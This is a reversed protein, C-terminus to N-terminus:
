ALLVILIIILLLAGIGIYMRTGGKGVDTHLRDSVRPSGAPFPPAVAATDSDIPAVPSSGTVELKDLQREGLQALRGPRRTYGRAAPTEQGSRVVWQPWATHM